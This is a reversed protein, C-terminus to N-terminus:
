SYLGIASLPEAPLPAKLLPASVGGGAFAARLKQEARQVLRAADKTILDQSAIAELRFATFADEADKQKNARIAAQLQAYKEKLAPIEGYDAKQERRRISFVCYAKSLPQGSSLLKSDHPDISLSSIDISGKPADIVTYTASQKLDIDTDVGVEIESEDKQGAILGFGETILPLFPKVVGVFSVGAISSVRTVYDLIPSILEGEKVSVLALEIGLTGGRWAIPAMM